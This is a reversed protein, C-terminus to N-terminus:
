EDPASDCGSQHRQHADGKRGATACAFEPSGSGSTATGSRRCQRSQKAITGLRYRYRLGTLGADVAADALVDLVAIGTGSSLRKAIRDPAANLMENEMFVLQESQKAAIFNQLNSLINAVLPQYEGFVKSLEMLKDRVDKDRVANLRLLESGNLFGDIIDHFTNVDKGLLFATEPNVGESTLFENASKGLRLTLLVLQGAASIERPSNGGQSHLMSIQESLDLLTPSLLRLRGLTAGFGTLEPRLNLITAAAKDTHDWVKKVDNLVPTMAPEPPSISSGQYNGGLMLLNLGQNFERRSETLQNFAERNGQIANPVAKGIRQSHMVLDSTIHAQLSAHIYNKSGLWLFFATSMLALALLLLLIRTQQRLSFRGILPLRLNKRSDLRAIEISTVDNIRAASISETQVSPKTKIGPLRPLKLAM